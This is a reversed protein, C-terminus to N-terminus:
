FKNVNTRLYDNESGDCDDHYHAHDDDHNPGADDDGCGDGDNCFGPLTIFFKFNLTIFLIKSLFSRAFNYVGSLSDIRGNARLECGWM